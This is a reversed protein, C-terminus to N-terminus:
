NCLTPFYNPLEYSNIVSVTKITRNKIVRMDQYDFDYHVDEALPEQEVGKHILRTKIGVALLHAHQLIAFVKVGNASSGLGQLKNMIVQLFSYM